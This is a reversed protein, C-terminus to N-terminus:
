FDLVGAHGVADFPPGGDGGDAGDQGPQGDGGPGEVASLAMRGLNRYLIEITFNDTIRFSQVPEESNVYLSVSERTRPLRVKWADLANTKYEESKGTPWIGMSGEQGNSQVWFLEVPYPAANTITLSVAKGIGRSLIDAETINLGM